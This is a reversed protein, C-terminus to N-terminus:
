LQRQACEFNAPIRAPLTSSHLDVLTLSCVSGETLVQVHTCGRAFDIARFAVGMNASRMKGNLSFIITGADADIGCGVVDGQKWKSGWPSSRGHWRQQRWGDYAWSHAGDGVGDGRDAAGCFAVDAWGIQICGNTHLIAEYYWRGSSVLCDPAGVSAFGGGVLGEVMLDHEGICAQGSVARLPNPM